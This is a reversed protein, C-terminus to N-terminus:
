KEDEGYSMMRLVRTLETLETDLGCDIIGHGTEIKAMGNELQEMPRIIVDGNFVKKFHDQHPLIKEADEFSVMIVASEDSDVKSLAKSILYEMVKGNEYFGDGFIKKYVETIVSVMKPELEAMKDYYEKELGAIKEDLLSLKESYENEAKQIGENYGEDFGEKKSNEKIFVAQEALENRAKEIDAMAQAKLEELSEETEEPESPEADRDAFLESMDVPTFEGDDEFELSDEYTNERLVGSFGELRKAVLSNTDIVKTNEPSFKVFGAKLVNSM